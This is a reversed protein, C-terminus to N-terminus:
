LPRAKADYSRNFRLVAAWQGKREAQWVVTGGLARAVEAPLLDRHADFYRTDAANTRTALNLGGPPPNYKTSFVIAADYNGPIQAAKAVEERTFNQIEATKMPQQVYGLEPRQLDATVPWASLVTAGPARQEIQQIAQQQLRIMDAYALNDEPAFPYPPNVICGAAFGALSLGALVYWKSVRRQWTDICLLLVLPYAPLLYRTLLAGGLVSFAIWYAALIVVISTTTGSPLRRRNPLTPLMLTAVTLLVPVFLNMHVTLHILRHWLSLLVRIASLNATANYRLYEPNGFTFGTKLRHYVYWCALPLAPFALAAILAAQGTQKRLPGTPPTPAPKATGAFHLNRRQAPRHLQGAETSIVTKNDAVSAIQSSRSRNRWWRFAELLFLAAPTVIATEKSLVALSFCLAINMSRGLSTLAHNTRSSIEEFDNTRGSIEEFYFSLAWLTAAAAFMDAHALTSQAFWVPYIATLGTLALAASQGTLGRALRYVGLLALTTVLCLLLRTSYIHFGTLKWWAALLISPLPPHANRVTSVPILTGLRWFDWAAPIYYGGEDWFYPLRLLPWHLLYIATFLPPFLLPLSLVRQRERSEHRRPRDHHSLNSTRQEM